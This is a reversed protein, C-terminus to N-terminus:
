DRPTNSVHPEKENKVRFSNVNGIFTVRQAVLTTDENFIKYRPSTTPRGALSYIILVMALIFVRLLISRTIALTSFAVEPAPM